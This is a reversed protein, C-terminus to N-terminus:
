FTKRVQLIQFYSADSSRTTGRWGIRWDSHGREIEGKVSKEHFAAMKVEQVGEYLENWDRTVDEVYITCHM